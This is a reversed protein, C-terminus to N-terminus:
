DSEVEVIEFIRDRVDYDFCKEVYELSLGHNNVYESKLANLNTNIVKLRNIYADSGSKLKPMSTIFLLHDANIKQAIFDMQKQEEVFVQYKSEVLDKSSSAFLLKTEIYEDDSKESMVVYIM